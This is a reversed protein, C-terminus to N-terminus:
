KTGEGTGRASALARVIDAAQQLGRCEKCPKRCICREIARAAEELAAARMGVLALAIREIADEADYMAWSGAHRRHMKADAHAAAQSVIEKAIERARAAEDSM